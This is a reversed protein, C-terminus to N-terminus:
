GLARHRYQHQGVTDHDIFPNHGHNWGGLLLVREGNYKWYRGEIAIQALSSSNSAFVLMVFVFALSLPAFIRVDDGAVAQRPAFRSGSQSAGMVERFHQSQRLRLKVTTGKPSLTPCYKSVFTRLQPSKRIRQTISM